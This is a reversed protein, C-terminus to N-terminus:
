ARHRATPRADRPDSPTAPASSVPSRSSGCRESPGRWSPAPSSPGPSAGPDSWASRDDWRIQRRRDGRDALAGSWPGLAVQPAFQAVSVLGVLLASGTLDFVLIAATINSVWIGITSLMQTWFFPGFSPDVLLRHTPRGSPPVNGV